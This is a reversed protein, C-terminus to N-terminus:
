GQMLGICQRPNIFFHFRNVDKLSFEKTFVFYLTLKANDILSFCPCEMLSLLTKVANM